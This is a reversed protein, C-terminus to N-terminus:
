CTGKYGTCYHADNTGYQKWAGCRVCWEGNNSSPTTPNTQPYYQVGVEPKTLLDRIDILVELLCDDRYPSSQSETVARLIEDKTRM